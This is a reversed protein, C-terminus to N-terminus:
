LNLWLAPRVASYYYDVHGGFQDVYGLAHVCAAYNGNGGPSRLWWWGTKEGSPLSYIDSVFCGQKKAYGTPAAMRDDDDRFYKKAEDRSLAFIRDQTANGGKIRKHGFIGGNPNDPNRNTVTAIQAQESSSFAKNIFEGNMWKRLTCTEWTVDGREENYKVYDILKDTILLVRGSEVALVRWELPQIEGNAGQPYQGFPIRDGVRYSKSPAPPTKKVSQPQPAPQPTPLSNPKPEPKFAYQTFRRDARCLGHYIEDAKAEDSRLDSVEISHLKRIKNWWKHMERSLKSCDMNGLDDLWICLAPKSYDVSYQYEDQMYSKERMFLEKTLFFITIRSEEVNDMIEDEWLNGPILGDDYWIPLGKKHLELAIGKIKEADTRSYSLFIHEGPMSQADFGFYVRPM